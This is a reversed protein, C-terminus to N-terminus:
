KMNEFVRHREAFSSVVSHLILLYPFQLTDSVSLLNSKFNSAIIGFRSNTVPIREFPSSGIGKFFFDKEEPIQSDRLAPEM